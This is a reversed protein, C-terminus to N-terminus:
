DEVVVLKTTGDKAMEELGTSIDALLLNRIYTSHVHIETVSETTTSTTDTSSTDSSTSTSSSSSSSSSSGSTKILSATAGLALAGAASVSAANFHATAGIPDKKAISIFGLATEKVAKGALEQGDLILQQKLNEKMLERMITWSLKEGNVLKSFITETSTVFTEGANKLLQQTLVKKAYYDQSANLSDLYQKKDAENLTEIKAIISDYDDVEGNRVSKIQETIDKIKSVYDEKDNKEKEQINYKEQAQRIAENYKEQATAKEADDKAKNMEKNFEIEALILDRKLDLKANALKKELEMENSANEKIRDIEIEKLDDQLKSQEENFKKIKELNIKEKEIEEEITKQRLLSSETESKIFDNLKKKNYNELQEREQLDAKDLLTRNLEIEKNVISVKLAIKENALDQELKNKDSNKVELKDVELKALEDQSKLIDENISKNSEIIKKANEERNAIGQLTSKNDSELRQKATEFEARLISTDESKKSNRIRSGFIKAQNYIQEALTLENDAKEKALKKLEEEVIKNSAIIAEKHEGQAKVYDAEQQEFFQKADSIGSYGKNDGGTPTTPTTPTSKDMESKLKNFYESGVQGELLKISKLENGLFTLMEKAKDLEVSIKKNKQGEIAYAEELSKGFDGVFEGGIFGKNEQSITSLQKLSVGEGFRKKGKELLADWARGMTNVGAEALAMEKVVKKQNELTKITNSQVKIQADVQKASAELEQKKMDILVGTASALDMQADGISNYYTVASPAIVGINNIVDQLEKQEEATPKTIKQLDEMRFILKQLSETSKDQNTKLDKFIKNLPTLINEVLKAGLLIIPQFTKGLNVVFEKIVLSTKAIKGSFSDQVELADGQFAIGQKLVSNYFAQRQAANNTIDIGNEISIGAKKMTSSLRETLGINETLEVSGTKIGKAADVYAQGLDGVINNFAGIDLMSKSLNMAEEVDFGSAIIMKLGQSAETLDVMGGTINVIEKAYKQALGGDRGFSESVSNLGKLALSTQDAKKAVDLIAQGIQQLQKFMMQVLFGQFFLNQVKGFNEKFSGFISKASTDTDDKMKKNSTKNEKEVEKIEQMVDKIASKFQDIDLEIKAQVLNEQDLPM